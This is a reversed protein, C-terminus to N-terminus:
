NIEILGALHLKLYAMDIMDAKGDNNIDCNEANIDSIGIKEVLYLKMLAIDVSDVAGDVNLDGKLDLKIRYIGNAKFETVVLGDEDIWVVPTGVSTVVVPPTLTSGVSYYATFTGNSLTGNTGSVTFGEPIIFDATVMNEISVDDVYISDGLGVSDSKFWLYIDTYSGITFQGATFYIAGDLWTGTETEASITLSSVEYDVRKGDQENGEAWLNSYGTFPTVTHDTKLAESVYYKFKIKYATNKEAKGLALANIRSNETHVNYYKFAKTGSFAYDSSIEVAQSDDAFPVAPYNEFSIVPSKYSYVTIDDKPMKTPPAIYDDESLSWMIDYERSATLAPYVIDDDEYFESETVNEGDIFTATYSYGFIEGIDIRTDDKSEETQAYVSLLLSSLLLAVTLLVGFLKKM